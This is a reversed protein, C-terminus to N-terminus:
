GFRIVDVPNMRAARRAPPIAAFTGILTAAVIGELVYRLQWDIPFMFGPKTPNNGPLTSLALVATGGIGAGILAGGGGIFLGLMVFTALIRSTSAGMSKLIGIERSRQLVSVILVSAVSTAVLIMVFVRIISTTGTQSQLAGLLEKNEDKWNTVQLGTSAALKTAITDANFPEDVKTEIRSVDGTLQALRQGTALSVYLSRENININGADFIGDVRLVREINQSSRVRLPDGPRLGLLRAMEIGIACGNGSLNLRGSKINRRLDIIQVHRNEEVGLITIPRAQGGRIAFGATSVVPSAANIGPYGDLLSLTSIWGRLRPERENFPQVTALNRGPVPLVRAEAEPPKVTLQSSSGITREILGKQLGVILTTIFLYVTVGFAIGAMTLVTQGGGRVFYRAALKVAFLM